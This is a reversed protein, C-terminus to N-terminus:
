AANRAANIATRRDVVVTRPDVPEHPEKIGKAFSKWVETDLQRVTKGQRKAEIVFAEELFKYTRGMPPTSHPADVYGIVRLYKLIHTDLPVCEAKPDSYLIVMRATKPGVAKELEKLELHNVDLRVVARFAKDVRVYQGFKARTLEPGLQNKYILKNVIEFPTLLYEDTGTGNRDLFQDLKVQTQGAGKGGVCIGFLTFWEVMPGSLTPPINFVDFSYPYAFKATM